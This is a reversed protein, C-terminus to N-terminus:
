ARSWRFGGSILASKVRIVRYFGALSRDNNENLEFKTSMKDMLVFIALKM